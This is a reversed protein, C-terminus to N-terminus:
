AADIAARVVYRLSGALRVILKSQLLKPETGERKYCCSRFPTQLLWLFHGPPLTCPRSAVLCRQM